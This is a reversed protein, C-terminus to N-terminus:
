DHLPLQGINPWLRPIHEAIFISDVIDIFLSSNHFVQKTYNAYCLTTINRVLQDSRGGMAAQGEARVMSSWVM